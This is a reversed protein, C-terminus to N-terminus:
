KAAGPSIEYLAPPGGGGILNSKAVLKLSARLDPTMADLDRPTALLYACKLNKLDPVASGCYYSLEYNIGNAICLQDGKVNAEITPVFRKVSRADALGPRLRMTWLLSPVLGLLGFAVGVV